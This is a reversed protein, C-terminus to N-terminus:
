VSARRAGRGRAGTRKGTEAAWGQGREVSRLVLREKARISGLVAHRERLDDEEPGELGQECGEEGEVRPCPLPLGHGGPWERRTRGGASLREERRRGRQLGEQPLLCRRRRCRAAALAALLASGLHAKCLARPAELPRLPSFPRLPGEFRALLAGGLHAAARLQVRSHEGGQHAPPGNIGAHASHARYYADNSTALSPRAVYRGKEEGREGVRLGGVLRLLRRAAGLDPRRLHLALLLLFRGGALGMLPFHRSRRRRSRPRCRSAAGSHVLLPGGLILGTEPSIQPSIPHRKPQLLRGTAVKGWGAAQTSTAAAATTAGGIRAGSHAPAPGALPGAAAAVGRPPSSTVPDVAATALAPAAGRDSRGGRRIGGSGGESGTHRRGLRGEAGSGDGGKPRTCKRWSGQATVGAHRGGEGELKAAQEAAPPYLGRGLRQSVEGVAKELVREEDAVM